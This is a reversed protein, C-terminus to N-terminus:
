GKSGYHPYLLTWGHYDCLDQLQKLFSDRMQPLDPEDALPSRHDLWIGGATRLGCESHLKFGEPVPTLSVWWGRRAGPFLSPSPAPFSFFFYQPSSQLSSFYPKLEAFLQSARVLDMSTSM